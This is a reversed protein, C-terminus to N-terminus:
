RGFGRNAESQWEFGPNLMAASVRECDAAPVGAERFVPYWRQSITSQIENIIAAARQVDLGFRPSQSLLNERTASRGGTGIEMALFREQSLVPKPVIDYAPSLRWGGANSILATNRPHDDDNNVLINFTIRRFLQIRDEGELEGFQRIRDALRLYSWNASDNESGQLV